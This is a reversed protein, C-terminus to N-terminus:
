VRPTYKNKELFVLHLGVEQCIEGKKKARPSSASVAPSHPGAAACRRPAPSAGPRRLRRHARPARELLGRPGRAALPAPELHPQDGRGRPHPAGLLLAGRGPGAAGAAGAGRWTQGGRSCGMHARVREVGANESPQPAVFRLPPPTSPGELAGRGELGGGRRVTVFVPEERPPDPGRARALAVYGYEDLSLRADYLRAARAFTNAPDTGPGRQGATRNMDRAHSLVPVHRHEAWAWLLSQLTTSGSRPARLLYVETDLEARRSTFWEAPCCRWSSSRLVPRSRMGSPRGFSHASVIAAAREEVLAAKFIHGRDRKELLANKAHTPPNHRKPKGEGEPKAHKEFWRPTALELVSALVLVRVWKM